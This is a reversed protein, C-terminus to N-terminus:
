VCEVRSVIRKAKEWDEPTNINLFMEELKWRPQTSSPNGAEAINEIDWLDLRGPGKETSIASAAIQLAHMIKYNGRLLAERLHLLLSHHMLSCLPQPRGGFVPVVALLSVPGCVSTVRTCRACLALLFEVTVLPLDVGLFLNWETQTRELAAVIGGLPGVGNAADLLFQPSSFDVMQFGSASHEKTQWREISDKAVCVQVTACVRQLRRMAHDLLTGTRNGAGGIFSDWLLMAKDTGMRSSRGGALVFGSVPLEAGQIATIKM